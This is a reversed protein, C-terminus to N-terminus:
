EILRIYLPQYFNVLYLTTANVNVSLLNLRRFFFSVGVYPIENSLFPILRYGSILLNRSRELHTLPLALSIHSIKQFVAGLPLYARPETNILFHHERLRQLISNLTTPAIRRNWREQIRELILEATFPTTAERILHDTLQQLTIRTM